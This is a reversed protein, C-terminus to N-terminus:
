AKLSKGYHTTCDELAATWADIMWHSQTLLEREDIYLRLYYSCSFLLYLQLHLDTTIGFKRRLEIALPLKMWENISQFVNRYDGGKQLIETQFSFHFLDFFMPMGDSALEWDYVFLRTEGTYMNWPTFDGHSLALPIKAELPIGTYVTELLTTLYKLKGSDLGNSLSRESRLQHMQAGIIRWVETDQVKQERHSISYLDSQARLHLASITSSAIRTAPQINSLRVRGKVKESIKPLSLTSFDYRSLSKIMTYENEILEEARNTLAIKIFHTTRDKVHVAMVLKRNKGRTGTFLSFSEDASLAYEARIRAILSKAILLTGSALRANQGFFSLVRSIGRFLDAKLSNANYLSLYPSSGSGAQFIWRITGDANNIYYFPICAEDSRGVKIENESLWITIAESNVSVGYEEDANERNVRNLPDSVAFGAGPPAFFNHLLQLDTLHVNKRM